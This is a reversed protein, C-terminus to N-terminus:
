PAVWTADWASSSWRLQARHHGNRDLRLWDMERVQCRVVLFHRCAEEPGGSAPRVAGPEDLPTGPAISQGYAARSARPLRRWHLDAVADGRHLSVDGNCRLQEQCAPDWFLWSLAPTRALQAAKASRADTHLFLERDPADVARLVVTRLAAGDVSQSAIAPTRWPHERDRVAGALREWCHKALRDIAPLPGPVGERPKASHM